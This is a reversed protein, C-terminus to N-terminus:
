KKVFNRWYRMWKLEASHFFKMENGVAHICAEIHTCMKRKLLIKMRIFFPPIIRFHFRHFKTRKLVHYFNRRLRVRKRESKKWIPLFAEFCFFNLSIQFLISDPFIYKIWLTLMLFLSSFSMSNPRFARPHFKFISFWYRCKEYFYAM